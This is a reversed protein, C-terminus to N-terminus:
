YSTFSSFLINKVILLLKDEDNFEIIKNKIGRENLLNKFFLVRELLRSHIFKKFVLFIAYFNKSNDRDEFMEVENHFIEPFINSFASKKSNENFCIKWYYVLPYFDENSYILLNKNGIEESLKRAEDKIQDINIDSFYKSDINFNPEIVKLLAKFMYGVGLRPPINDSPLKIYPIFNEKALELIKGDQSIILNKYGKDFSEKFASITEATNGSFSISIILREAIDYVKPLHYDKNILINKDFGIIMKLLGGALHSGGMGCIIYNHSHNFNKLNEIKPNFDFQHIFNKIIEEM